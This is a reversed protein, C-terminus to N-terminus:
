PTTSPGAQAGRNNRNVLSGYAMGAMFLRRSFQGRASHSRCRSRIYIFRSLKKEGTLPTVKQPHSRRLPAPRMKAAGYFKGLFYITKKGHRADAEPLTKGPKYSCNAREKMMASRLSIQASRFVPM